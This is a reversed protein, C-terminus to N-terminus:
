CPTHLEPFAEQAISCSTMPPSSDGTLVTSATKGSPWEVCCLQADSAMNERTLGCGWSMRLFLDRDSRRSARITEEEEPLQKGACKHGRTEWVLLSFFCLIRSSNQEASQM